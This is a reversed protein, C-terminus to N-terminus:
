LCFLTIFIEFDELYHFTFGSEDNGSGRMEVFTAFQCSKGPIVVERRDLVRWKKLDGVNKRM